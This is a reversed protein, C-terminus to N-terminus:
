WDTNGVGEFNIDEDGSESSESEDVVDASTTNPGFYGHMSRAAGRNRNKGAGPLPEFQIPHIEIEDTEIAVYDFGKLTLIKMEVEAQNQNM